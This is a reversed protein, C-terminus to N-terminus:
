HSSQATDLLNMIGSFILVIRGGLLSMVAVMVITLVALILTYEVLTQGRSRSRGRGFPVSFLSGRRLCRPMSSHVFVLAAFLPAKGWVARRLLLSLVTRM